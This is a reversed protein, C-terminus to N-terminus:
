GFSTSLFSEESMRFLIFLLSKTLFRLFSVHQVSDSVGRFATLQDAKHMPRDTRRSTCSCAVVLSETVPKFHLKASFLTKIPQLFILHLVSAGSRIQNPNQRLIFLKKWSYWMCIVTGAHEQPNLNLFVQASQTKGRSLCLPDLRQGYSHLVRQILASWSQDTHAQWYFLTLSKARCPARFAFEAMLTEPLDSLVFSTPSYTPTSSNM